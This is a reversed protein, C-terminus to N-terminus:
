IYKAKRVGKKAIGCGRPRSSKKSKVKGGKKMDKPIKGYAEAGIMMGKNPRSKTHGMLKHLNSVIGFKDLLSGLGGQQDKPMASITSYKTNKIGEDVSMKKPKKRKYKKPGAVEDGTRYGRIQKNMDSRNM